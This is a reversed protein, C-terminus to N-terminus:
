PKELVLLQFCGFPGFREQHLKQFRKLQPLALLSFDARLHFRRSLIALIRGSAFPAFYNQIILRGGPKLVRFSEDLVANPDPAVSLVHALVVTDFRGGEFDLDAGDMQLLQSGAAARRRARQLMKESLDIGTIKHGAFLSLRLGTGVGIELLTGAPLIKLQVGMRKNGPMLLADVLGYLPAGFNYLRRVSNSGNKFVM